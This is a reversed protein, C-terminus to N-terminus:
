LKSLVEQIHGGVKVRRFVDTVIGDSDILFTSREIGIRKKGYLNKEKLVGYAECVLGDPDSLLTFPIELKSKFKEHSAM